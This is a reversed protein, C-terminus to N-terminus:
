THNSLKMELSSVREDLKNIRSIITNVIKQMDEKFINMYWEIDSDSNSSGSMGCQIVSYCDPTRQVPPTPPHYIRAIRPRPM